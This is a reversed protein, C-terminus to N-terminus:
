DAAAEEEAAEPAPAVSALYAAVHEGDKRMKFSMGSKKAFGNADLWAKPDVVYEAISEETWVFGAEAADKLGDKYRFDEVTGATRGVIGYLNPGTRGGKFIEEGEPSVIMHCAKCKKFAKEGKEADGEAFAPASLAILAATAVFLNKM